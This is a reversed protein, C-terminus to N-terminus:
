LGRPGELFHNKAAEQGNNAYEHDDSQNWAEAAGVKEAGTGRGFTDDGRHRSVVDGSKFHLAFGPLHHLLLKRLSSCLDGHQHGVEGRLRRLLEDTSAGDDGLRLAQAQVCGVVVHAVFQLMAAVRRDKEGLALEDALCGVLFTELLRVQRYRLEFLTHFIVDQQLLQAVQHGAACQNGVGFHMLLEYLVIGLDLEVVRDQVLFVNELRNVRGFRFQLSVVVLVLRRIRIGDRLLSLDLVGQQLRRLDLGSHLDAMLLNLGVVILM